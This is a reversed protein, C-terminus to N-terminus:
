ISYGFGIESVTKAMPFEDYIKKPDDTVVYVIGNECDRFPDEGIKGKGPGYTKTKLADTTDCEVRYLRMSFTREEIKYSFPCKYLSYEAQHKM